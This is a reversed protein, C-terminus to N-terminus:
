AKAARVAAWRKENGAISRCSGSCFTGVRPNSARHSKSVTFTVGCRQCICVAGWERRGDKRVHVPEGAPISNPSNHIWLCSRCTPYLNTIENNDSNGDRHGVILNAGGGRGGKQWFITKSCEECRHAGPGIHAYLAVRAVSAYGAKTALPHSPDYVQHLAMPDM